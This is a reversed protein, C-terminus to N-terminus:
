GANFNPLKRQGKNTPEDDVADLLDFEDNGKEAFFM